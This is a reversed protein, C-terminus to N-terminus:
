KSIFVDNDATTIASHNDYSVKLGNGRETTEVYSGDNWYIPTPNITLGMWVPTAGGESM